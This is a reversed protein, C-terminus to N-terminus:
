KIRTPSDQGSVITASSRAIARITSTMNKVNIVSLDDKVTHYHTAVDIKVTSVTHAPVGLHALSANDSRYFLEMNPYPDPYFKFTKDQINHQLIQGFNSREFGTIFAADEGFKSVTGIMEINFMASIQAPNVQTAFYQSGYEGIEEATFTVFIISRANNNLKKYYKALSLVGTVGSADDDAGNAISDGEVPKVIGLHDYHASFIVYENPKSKGPLVGAINNLKLEESKAKYDVKFSKVEDTGLIFVQASRNENKFTISEGNFNAQFHRFFSTYSTDVLVILNKGSKVLKLYEAFMSNVKSLKVVEVAKNNDWNFSGDSAIILNKPDVQHDNVSVSVASPKTKIMTFQQRFDKDNSLPKLGIAKFQGEIYQAAKEIGSTFTRRGQMDDSALTKITQEVDAQKILQDADQSFGQFTIAVLAITLLKKNM